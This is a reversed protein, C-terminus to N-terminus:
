AIETPIRTAARWLPLRERLIKPAQNDEIDKRSLHIPALEMPSPASFTRKAQVAEILLRMYDPSSFTGGIVFSLDDNVTVVVDIRAGRQGELLADAYGKLYEAYGDAFHKNDM